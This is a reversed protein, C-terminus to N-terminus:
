TNTLDHSAIPSLHFPWAQPPTFPEPHGYSGLQGYGLDDALIIVFNPREPVSLAAYSQGFIGGCVVWVLLCRATM